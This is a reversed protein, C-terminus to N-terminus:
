EEGLVGWRTLVFLLLYGLLGVGFLLVPILFPGATEVVGTIM